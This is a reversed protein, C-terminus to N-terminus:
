SGCQPNRQIVRESGQVQLRHILVGSNRSSVMTTAYPVAVLLENVPEAEITFASVMSARTAVSTVMSASGTFSSRTATGYAVVITEDLFESDPDLAVNHIGSSSVSVEKSKYGISSFVLIGDYPVSLSYHGESDTSVGITTGELHVSVYPIPAGDSSDTVNGSVSINQAFAVSSMM